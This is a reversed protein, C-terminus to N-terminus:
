NKKMNKQFDKNINNRILRFNYDKIKLFIEKNNNTLKQYINKFKKNNNFKKKNFSFKNFNLKNFTLKNM